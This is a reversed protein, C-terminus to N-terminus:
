LEVWRERYISSDEKSKDSGSTSPQITKATQIIEKQLYNKKDIEKRKAIKQIYKGHKGKNYQHINCHIVQREIKQNTNILPMMVKGMKGLIYVVNGRKM